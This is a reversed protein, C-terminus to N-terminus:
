KRNLFAGLVVGAVFAGALSRGPYKRVIEAADKALDEVVVKIDDFSEENLIKDKLSSLGEHGDRFVDESQNTQPSM